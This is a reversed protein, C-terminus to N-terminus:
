FLSKVIVLINFNHKHTNEAVTITYSYYLKPGM